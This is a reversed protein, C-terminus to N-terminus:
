PKDQTTILADSFRLEDVSNYSDYGSSVIRDGVKLGELVEVQRPNQRGLKVDIRHASRGDASVLYVWRGGTQQYFGGKDVILSQSPSGFSLEVNVSQGRKLTDPVADAFVVDAEFTNQKVEPYVKQVRVDWNRGDLNVHGPTGVQVRSIYFQDIRARIKFGDLVDIQGIRQGRNINQGIQADITSLHGAIPARVELSRVIRSLLERSEDLKAISDKALKLQNSSLAEEQRMREAMLARREKLYKLQDRTTEFLERSIPSNPTAMLADYRKFKAEMDVIQHDLDLLAEQRLIISQSTSFETSRYRDLTELLRTETEIATRQAQANSFRLILEGQKVAQGGEVFIKEVRGGEEIDLYVSTAPEVTGDFPYYERFEGETVVATTLRTSDVKLRSSGTRAFLQWAIVLAVLAGAAMLGWQLPTRGRKEIVRDVAPSNWTGHWFVVDTSLVSIKNIITRHNPSAIFMPM